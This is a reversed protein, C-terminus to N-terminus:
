EGIRGVSLSQGSINRSEESAFFVAAHGIDEPPKERVRLDLLALKEMM